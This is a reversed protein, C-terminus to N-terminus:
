IERTLIGTHCFMRHLKFKFNFLKTHGLNLARTFLGTPEGNRDAACRKM